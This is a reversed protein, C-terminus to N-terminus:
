YRCICLGFDIRRQLHGVGVTVGEVIRERGKIGLMLDPSIKTDQFPGSRYGIPSDRIKVRTYRPCRRLPLVHKAQMVAM